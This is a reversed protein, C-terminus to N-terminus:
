TKKLDIQDLYSFTHKSGEEVWCKTANFTDCLFEVGVADVGNYLFYEDYDETSFNGFSVDQEQQQQQQQQTRVEKLSQEADQQKSTFALNSSM